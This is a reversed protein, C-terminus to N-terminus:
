YPGKYDKPSKGKHYVEEFLEMIGDEQQGLRWCCSGALDRDFVCSLKAAISRKDELWVKITKGEENWTAFYQGMDDLWVPTVGAAKVRSRSTPMIVASAGLNRNNEGVTWIRTYFPIGMLLKDKGCYKLMEQVNSTYFPASSVSGAFEDGNYHEDYTMLCFYDLSDAVKDYQYIECNWSTPIYVSSTLFLGLRGCYESMEKTFITLNSGDSTRVDEYDINLGDANMMMAYFLYQAITKRRLGADALVKTTYNTSGRTTMDNNLTIWVQLGREHCLDVYGRDCVSKIDGNGEVIQNLWVPSVVDIGATDPALFSVGESNANTWVLNFKRDLGTKQKASFVFDYDPPDDDTEEIDSKNVYCLEGSVTRIKYFSPSEGIIYVQRDKKIGVTEPSSSFLSGAGEIKKLTRGMRQQESAPEMDVYTIESTDSNTLGEAEDTTYSLGAFQQMVNLSVYYENYITKFSLYCSGCYKKIFATTEGDGTLINMESPTFVIRRNEMDVLYPERTCYERLAAVPIYASGKITCAKFGTEEGKYLLPVFNYQDLRFGGNIGAADAAPHIFALCILLTCIFVCLIRIYHYRFVLKGM